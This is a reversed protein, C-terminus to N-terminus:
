VGFKIKGEQIIKEIFDKRKWSKIRREVKRATDLNDFKQSFVLKMLGLRKTTPTHGIDHQKLRRDLDSTSGVYYKGTKESQLIYLIGNM